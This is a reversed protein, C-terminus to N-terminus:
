IKALGTANMLTDVNEELREIRVRHKEAILYEINDLRRNVESFQNDMSIKLDNSDEATQDFGKKVMRALSEITANEEKM